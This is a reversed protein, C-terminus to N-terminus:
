AIQNHPELLVPAKPFVSYEMIAMAGVDVSAWLPLVQYPGIKPDFQVLSYVKALNFQKFYFQKLM